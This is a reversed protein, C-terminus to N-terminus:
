IVAMAINARFGVVERKVLVNLGDGNSLPEHTVVQLDRKGAKEVVGVPLGTLPDHLANHALQRERVAIGSQMANFARALLGFEDHSRVRVPTRYDGAGIREAAEVLANLPRSVAARM